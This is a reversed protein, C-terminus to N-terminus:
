NTKHFSVPKLLISIRHSRVQAPAMGPTARVAPQHAWSKRHVVKAMM